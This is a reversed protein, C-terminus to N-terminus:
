DADPRPRLVFGLERAPDDCTELPWDRDLLRVHTDDLTLAGLDLDHVAGPGLDTQVLLEGQPGSCARVVAGVPLGTHTLLQSGPLDSRVRLILPAVELDVYVRQPGNQWYWAGQDDGAYNRAIFDLIQPNRIPSGEGHTAEDFDPAGREVLHWRGRRDLRLWGHVAPVNPWRKMAAQVRDDFEPQM